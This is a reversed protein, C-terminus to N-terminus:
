DNEVEGDDGDGANEVADAADFIASAQDVREANMDQFACSVKGEKERLLIETIKSRRAPLKAKAAVDVYPTGQLVMMSVEITVIRPKGDEKGRDDLDAMAAQLARNIVFEGAGDSLDALTRANLDKLM